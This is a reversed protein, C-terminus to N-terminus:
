GIGIIYKDANIKIEKTGMEEYTKPDCKREGGM